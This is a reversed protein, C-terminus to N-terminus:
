ALPEHGITVEYLTGSPYDRGLHHLWDRDPFGLGVVVDGLRWAFSTAGGDDMGVYGYAVPTWGAAEYLAKHWAAIANRDADTVFLETAYGTACGEIGCQPDGGAVAQPAAGPMATAFVDTSALDKYSPGRPTGCAAVALAAVVALTAAARIRDGM